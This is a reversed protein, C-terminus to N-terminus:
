LAYAKARIHEAMQRPTMGSAKIEDPSIPRGFTIRFHAGKAKVLESPLLVQEINVKLGLRKRWRATLYFRRSNLAEFHVPVIHRDYELAKAVFTKKWELDAVQGDAGLRSVLGAPFFPIQADSAYAENLRQTANRGMAGYKNIPVFVGALPKVNLLMDNVPFRIADSGYRQGLVSILAIGDLGGLPHNSAFICRIDEPVDDLGRVEVSIQQERLLATAFEVGEAPWTARLLRNLDDQCVLRELAHVVGPAVLWRWRRSVRKRLIGGLDILM